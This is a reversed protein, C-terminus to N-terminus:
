IVELEFRLVIRLQEVTKHQSHLHKKTTTSIFVIKDQTNQKQIHIKRACLLKTHGSGGGTNGGTRSSVEIHQSIM